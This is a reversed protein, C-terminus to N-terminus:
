RASSYEEVISQHHKFVHMETFNDHCAIKALRAILAQPDYGAEHIADGLQGDAQGKAGGAGYRFQHGQVL